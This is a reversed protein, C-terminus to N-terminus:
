NILWFENHFHILQAASFFEFLTQTGSLAFYITVWIMNCINFLRFTATCNTIFPQSELHSPVLSFHFFLASPQHLLRLLTISPDSLAALSTSSTLTPAAYLTWHRSPLLTVLITVSLFYPGTLVVEGRGWMIKFLTQITEHSKQQWKNLIQVSFFM